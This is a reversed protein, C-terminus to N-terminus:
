QGGGTGIENPLAARLRAIKHAHYSACDGSWDAPVTSCYTNVTHDGPPNGTTIVSSFDPAQMEEIKRGLDSTIQSLSNIRRGTDGLFFKGAGIPALGAFLAIGCILAVAMPLPMRMM